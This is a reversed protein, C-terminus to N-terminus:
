CSRTVKKKKKKKLGNSYKFKHVGSCPIRGMTATPIPPATTKAVFVRDGVFQHPTCASARENCERVLCLRNYSGGLQMQVRSRGVVITRQGVRRQRPKQLGAHDIRLVQDVVAQVIGRTVVVALGRPSVILADYQQGQRQASLALLARLQERQCVVNRVCHRQMQGDTAHQLLRQGVPRGVITILKDEFTPPHTSPLVLSKQHIEFPM